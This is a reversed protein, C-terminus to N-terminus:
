KTSFIFTSVIYNALTPMILFHLIKGPDYDDHVIFKTVDREEHLYLESLEKTDWEGARCKIQFM